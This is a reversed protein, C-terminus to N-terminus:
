PAPRAHNIRELVDDPLLDQAVEFLEREEFRVHEHLLEGFKRLRESLPDRSVLLARLAAHEALTRDVLDARGAELLAPLMIEEEVRFHPELEDRFRRIVEAWTAEADESTARGATRALVLAHHHDHSM